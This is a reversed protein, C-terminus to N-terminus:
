ERSNKGYENPHTGCYETRQIPNMDMNWVGVMFNKFEAEREFHQNLYHHYEVFEQETVSKDGSFNKASNHFTTFMDFFNYRVEEVSNIGAKVDPHRTPDFRKKVEDVELTGNKNLDLKQFAERM